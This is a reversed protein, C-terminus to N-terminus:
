ITVPWKNRKDIKAHVDTKWRFLYCTQPVGGEGTRRCGQDALHSGQQDRERYIHSINNGSTPPSVVLLGRVATAAHWDSFIRVVGEKGFLEVAKCTADAFFRTLKLKNLHVLGRVSRQAHGAKGGARPVTRVRIRAEM